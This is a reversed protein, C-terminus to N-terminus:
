APQEAGGATCHRWAAAAACALSFAGCSALYAQWRPSAFPLALDLQGADDEGGGHAGRAAQQRAFLRRGRRELARLAALPLAVGFWLLAWLEVTLCQQLPNDVADLM